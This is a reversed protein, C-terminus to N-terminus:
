YKRKGGFLSNLEVKSNIINTFQPREGTSWQKIKKLILNKEGRFHNKLPLSNFFKHGYNKEIIRKDLIIVTGEDQCTRILRGFGQKFRIIAQPISFSSFSNRSIELDELRAEVTPITPAWFPLKVIIVCQLSKGPIDVGEWFSSAGFLVSKETEKFEEVLRTRSGDINHGLLCIGQEELESKLLRYTEKLMKHSTFLVLTKGQYHEALEAIFPAIIGTFAEDDVESLSPIDKPVCILAQQEYDFPSQLQKEIIRNEPLLDLGVRQLFHEFSEDVTLTASTLIVSKKASFLQEYLIQNVRIPAIKLNCNQWELNEEVEIWYVLNDQCGKIMLDLTELIGQCTQAHNLADKAEAAFIDEKEELLAAMKELNDKLLKIRLSFNDYVTLVTQWDTSGRDETRIRLTHVREGGRKGKNAIQAFFTFLLQAYERLKFINEQSSDLCSNFAEIENESFHTGIKIGRLKLGRVFGPNGSAINYLSNLYSFFSNFSFQWGLHETAGDELHHAEDLVLHQFSPLIGNETKIDSFLLSHNIILLDAAEAERRARMLFCYNKYWTCRAGLCTEADAAVLNWHELQNFNVNFENKDGTLTEKLWFQLRLYFRLEQVSFDARHEILQQWKRLCLYNNRGKVIASKFEFDFIKKLLPIDKNWLQEQLNITHTAIVIPEKNKVAWLLSPILYALSKGTGTGAEIVLHKETNFAQGVLKLMDKQQQRDEYNSFHKAFIGDNGVLKELEAVDILGKETDEKQSRRFLNCERYDIEKLFPSKGGIKTSPFSKVREREIFSFLTKHRWTKDALFRNIHMLFGLDLNNLETLVRLFLNACISADALARHTKTHEILLQSALKGLQYSGLTPFAMQSLEVTDFTLNSFSYNLAKTIFTLDFDINHGVLPFDGIFEIVKARLDCIKPADLSDEESIGTLNKVRLPISEDIQVLSQFNEIRGRDYKVLGIELIQDKEPNLGTTEVDLAVFDLQLNPQVLNM